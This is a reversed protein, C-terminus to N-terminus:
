EGDARIKYGTLYIWGEKDPGALTEMATGVDAESGLYMLPQWQDALGRWVSAVHDQDAYKMTAAYIAGSSDSTMTYISGGFNGREDLQLANGFKQTRRDFRTVGPNGKEDRGWYIADPLFVVGLSQDRAMQQWSDGHDQSRQMVRNKGDGVTVWVDETYPDVAVRHIHVKDRNPASFVVQWSDGQDSSRWVTKSMGVQQPGYEGLFIRDEADSSISWHLVTGSEITKVWEFQSGGDRSRYIRSPTTSSWRGKDTAVILLGSATQHIGTIPDDFQYLPEIQNGNDIVRYLEHARAGYVTGDTGLSLKWLKFSTSYVREDLITDAIPLTPQQNNYRNVVVMILAAIAVVFVLRM